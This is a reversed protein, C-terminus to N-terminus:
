MEQIKRFIHGCSVRTDAYIPINNNKCQECFYLDESLTGGDNYQVWKFWPFEFKQFVTSKILICGAGGGHIQICYEGQERLERLEDASYQQTYNFEGLKCLCSKGTYTNNQRHAYYGTVVEQDHSLLNILTDKPLIVDNDVMLVYDCHLEICKKVIHNRAAACDYGRISEFLLESNDPRELDYISKFTDPYITEYTPVAILIKM